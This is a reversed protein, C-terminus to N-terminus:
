ASDLLSCTNVSIESPQFPYPSPSGSTTPTPRLFARCLRRGKELATPSAASPNDRFLNDHGHLHHEDPHQQEVEDQPSQTPPVPWPSRTRLADGHLRVAGVLLEFRSCQRQPPPLPPTPPLPPANKSNRTGQTVCTCNVQHNVDRQDLTATHLDELKRGLFSRRKMSSVM